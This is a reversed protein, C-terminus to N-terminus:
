TQVCKGDLTSSISTGSMGVSPVAITMSHSRFEIECISTGVRPEYTFATTGGVARDAAFPTVVVALCIPVEIAGSIAAGSSPDAAHILTGNQIQPVVFIM